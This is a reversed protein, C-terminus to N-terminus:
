KKRVKNICIVYTSVEMNVNVITFNEDRNVFGQIMKLHLEKDQPLNVTLFPESLEQSSNNAATENTPTPTPTPQTSTTAVKEIFDLDESEVSIVFECAFDSMTLSNKGM